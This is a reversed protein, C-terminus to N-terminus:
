SAVSQHDLGPLIMRDGPHSGHIRVLRQHHTQPRGCSKMVRSSRICGKDIATHSEQLGAGRGPADPTSRSKRCRCCTRSRTTAPVSGGSAFCEDGGPGNGCNSSRWHRVLWSVWNAVPDFWPATVGTVTALGGFLRLVVASCLLLYGRWMWRRHEAFRGDIASESASHCAPPPRSPWLRWGPQQSPVRQPM